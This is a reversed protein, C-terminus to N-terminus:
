RQLKGLQPLRNLANGRQVHRQSVTTFLIWTNKLLEALCDVAQSSVSGPYEM